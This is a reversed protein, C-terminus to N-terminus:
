GARLGMAMGALAAVAQVDLEDELGVECGWGTAGTRDPRVDPGSRQNLASM